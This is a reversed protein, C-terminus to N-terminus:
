KVELLFRNRSVKSEDLVFGIKKKKEENEKLLFDMNRYIYFILIFYVLLIFIYCFKFIIFM